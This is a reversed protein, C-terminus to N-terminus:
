LRIVEDAYEDFSNDHSSVIVIKGQNHCYEDIYKVIRQCNDSDLNSIPEDCLLLDPQNMIARVLGVRQQEGGSLELPYYQIRNQLGFQELLCTAKECNKKKERPNMCNNVLVVNDLVTLNHFLNFDQYVIGIYDRRIKCQETNSLNSVIQGDYLIEGSDSDQLLGIMTLLTTKGKGSEGKIVYMKGSEFTYNFDKIISVEQKKRRYSKELHKVEVRM